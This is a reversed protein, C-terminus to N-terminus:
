GRGYPLVDQGREPDTMKHVKVDDGFDVNNMSQPTILIFQRGVNQRAAQIMMTMSTARNVNDMFVDFEDLCRIPSGMAEWISLLLCITSFSKEGGSLTKTERGHDSSRSLDPEVKIDLEKDGHNMIVRGRFQRESLLYMFTIRARSSIMKRFMKWRFHRYKLTDKLEKSFRVMSRLQAEAENYEMRAKQWALTLEERTGGAEREAREKDKIFRGLRADIDDATLGAEVPVRRGCIQRAQETFQEVWRRQTEFKEELRTQERKAEDIEELALNKEQLAKMRAQELQQLRNEGKAVRAKAHDLAATADDLRAKIEHAKANLADKANVMDAFSAGQGELEGRADELTRELEQLKGDEPRNNDIEAKQQEVADDAQQSKVILDKQQRGFRTVAENAAKVAMTRRHQEDRAAQNAMAAEKVREQQVIIQDQIDTQMRPAGNWAPVTSSKPAGSGSIEYRIAKSRDEAFAMTVRVNQPRPTSHMFRQAEDRDEILVTQEFAQNIILSNRVLDNDIRLVRLVTDVNEVPEKGTTDLPAAHGIFVPTVCRARQMIQSLLKQDEKCTVVFAEGSGGLTKEIQSSWKPKLLQIHQAIPGAPKLRWRTEQNVARVLAEMNPRYSAFPRGRNGQLAKLKNEARDLADKAQALPQKGDEVHQQAQTRAQEVEAYGKGHEMQEQNRAEAEAKLHDLKALREAHEDGEAGALINWERAIDAELKKIANKSAKMDERLGREQSKMETLENRTKDMAEKETRHTDTLPRLQEQFSQLTNKAAETSQDHGEFTGEVASAADTKEQVTAVAGQVRREYDELVKEQEEVQAWAHMWQTKKIKQQIADTQELRKKRSEAEEMKQKLVAIDQQRSFLKAEISDLHEEMLKYDADLVELQTGRIFFKYKDAATSNSLFQRAMDQTLVNIPNDLQFAFFDLIDDLDAKKTSIVKDEANKLKFGSTGARTFHREVTISRGYHEPKYAGDGQNKIKVALTASEEGEKILSKMSAGRNTATAKGGLCMTLATLVASKGSGNHGIIFNILPGLKIRLKAHCMFNRCYVEEIVGQESAMNDRLERCQKQVIQTARLEDVEEDEEDESYQPMIGGYEDEDVAGEVEDDDDDSVVSGGNEQALAVRSRKTFSSQRFNSSASEIEIDGDVDRIDRSRKRPAM